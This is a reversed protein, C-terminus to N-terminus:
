QKKEERSLHWLIMANCAVAAYDGAILHRMTASFYEDQNESTPPIDYWDNPKRGETIGGRMNEALLVDQDHIGAHPHRRTGDVVASM